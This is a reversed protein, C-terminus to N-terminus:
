KRLRFRLGVRVGSAGPGMVPGLTVEKLGSGSTWVSHGQNNFKDILGGTIIGGAFAPLGIAVKVITSCETDNSGCLMHPAFVFGGLGGAVAGILLGNWLSDSRPASSSSQAAAPTAASILLAALILVTFRAVSVERIRLHTMNLM